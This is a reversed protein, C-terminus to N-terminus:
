FNTVGEFSCFLVSRPIIEGGLSEKAVLTLSPLAYVHISVDTWMGVAVLNSGIRNEGIPNIDLCAIEYDLKTRKTEMLLGRGIEFYILNGGGSAVLIQTFRELEPNLFDCCGVQFHNEM